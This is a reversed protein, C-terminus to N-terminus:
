SQADKKEVIGHAAEIARAVSISWSTGPPSEVFWREGRDIAQWIEKDSLPKLEKQPAKQVHAEILAAFREDRILHWEGTEGTQYSAYLGAEKAMRIVDERNM